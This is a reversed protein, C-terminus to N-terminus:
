LSVERGNRFTHPIISVIRTTSTWRQLLGVGFVSTVMEPSENQPKTKGREVGGGFECEFSNM